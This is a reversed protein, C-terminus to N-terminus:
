RRVRYHLHTVREGAVIEPDELLTEPGAFDGFFRIGRGLLVPALEVRLQDVLGLALAQGALNGGTLSVDRDGALKRAEGIAQALDGVFRFPARGLHEWEHPVTHTVVIVQEGSPPRGDWGNTLDFLRRGVVAVAVTPWWAEVYDASARSLRFPRQDDGPASEVDGSSYWEFLPGVSDNQRAVFGDLSMTATAIVEAM